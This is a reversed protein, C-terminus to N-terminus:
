NFEVRQVRDNITQGSQFHQNMTFSNYLSFLVHLSEIYQKPEEKSKEYIPIGFSSCVIQTLETNSFPLKAKLPMEESAIGELESEWAEMLNDLDPMKNSYFVSPSERKKHIEEVDTIWQQVMKQNKHANSISHVDKDKDIAKGKYFERILLDLYSQKSLNFSPRNFFSMSSNLELAM